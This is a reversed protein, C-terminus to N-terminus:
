SALRIPWVTETTTAIAYEDCRPQPALVDYGETSPIVEDGPPPDLILSSIILCSWVVPVSSIVISAIALRRSTRPKRRAIFECAIIVFGVIIFKFISMGLRGWHVIIFDAIPNVETGGFFLIVRTFLVDLASVFILYFYLNPHHVPM